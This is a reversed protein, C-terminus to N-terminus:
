FTRLIGKTLMVLLRQVVLTQTVRHCHSHFTLGVSWVCDPVYPELCAASVASPGLSSSHVIIYLAETGRVAATSYQPM